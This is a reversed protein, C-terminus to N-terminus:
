VPDRALLSPGAFGRPTVHFTAPLQTIAECQRCSFRERVTQIAKCQRPVVELTETVDGDRRRRAERATTSGCCPRNAPAAIVVRERRAHEPFAKMGAAQALNSLRRPRRASRRWSTKARTPRSSRWSCRWNTLSGSAASRTRATSRGSCVINGGGRGDSALAEVTGRRWGRRKEGGSAAVYVVTANVGYGQVVKSVSAGPALSKAVVRRKEETLGFRRGPLVLHAGAAQIAQRVVKGKHSGITSSSLTAESLAPVLFQEVYAASIGAM